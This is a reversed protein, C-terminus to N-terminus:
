HQHFAALSSNGNSPKLDRHVYKQSHLFSLGEAIHLGIVFLNRVKDLESADRGVFSQNDTERLSAISIPIMPDSDHHYRTYETLTFNGLEM